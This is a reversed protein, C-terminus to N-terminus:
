AADVLFDVLDQQVQRGRVGHRRGPFVIARGHPLAAAMEQAMAAGCFPDLEGSLVLTPAEIEGLRPTFDLREQAELLVLMDTADTPANRAMLPAFLWAAARGLMDDPQVLELFALSVRRWEGAEALAGVSRAFDLGAETLRPGCDQLVLRRVLQPHEAALHFAIAGGSSLGIVDIPPEFDIEIATAYDAAMASLSTGRSMGPRRNVVSVRRHQALARYPALGFRTEMRSLARNEFTLGQLVMVAAGEGIANFPLGGSLVGTPEGAGAM